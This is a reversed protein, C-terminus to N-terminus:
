ALTHRHCAVLPEPLLDPRSGGLAYSCLLPVSYVEIVDNWLEELRQTAQPNPMWLLNVIEGFVRVQGTFSATKAKEILRGVTTMFVHEDIIGGFVYTALLTEATVWTLREASELERINVGNERLQRSIPECHSQATLLLASDGSRLGASVFLCVAEAFQSENTYPYVIHACPSPETLIAEGTANM